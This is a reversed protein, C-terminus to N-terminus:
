FFIAKLFLYQKVLLKFFCVNQECNVCLSEIQTIGTDDEATLGQFVPKGRENEEFTETSQEGLSASDEMM